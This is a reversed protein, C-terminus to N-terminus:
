DRRVAAKPPKVKLKLERFNSRGTNDTWTVRVVYNGAKAFKHKLSFPKTDPKGKDIHGDGWDVFLNIHQGNDPDVLQGSLAASKGAFISRTFTVNSIQPPTTGTGTPAPGRNVKLSEVDVFKVSVTDSIDV